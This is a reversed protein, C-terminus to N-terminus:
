RVVRWNLTISDPNIASATPNCFKFNVNNTTPYSYISLGGATLPQFGVADSINANPTWTIVDTTAVGTASVTTLSSCAESSISPADIATAGAAIIVGVTGVSGGNVALATAVGTGLGSVKTAIPVSGQMDPLDMVLELATELSAVTIDKKADAAASDEILLHDGAVPTAKDTIAAIEGSVDDHIATADSSGPSAQLGVGVWGVGGTTCTASNTCVCLSREAGGSSTCDGPTPDDTVVVMENTAPYSPLFTATKPALKGATILGQLNNDGSVDQWLTCEGTGINNMGTICRKDTLNSGDVNVTATGTTLNGLFTNKAVRSVTGCFGDQNPDSMEFVNGIFNNRTGAFDSSADDNISIGCSGASESFTRFTNGTFTNYSNYPISATVATNELWVGKGPSANCVGSVCDEWNACARNADDSCVGGEFTNGSIVANNVGQLLLGQFDAGRIGKCHNGTITLGNNIRNAEPSHVTQDMQAVICSTTRNGNDIGNASIDINNGSVLWGTGGFIGIARATGIPTADVPLNDLSFTNNVISCDDCHLGHIVGASSGIFHSNSVTVGLPTNSRTPASVALMRVAFVNPGPYGSDSTAAQVSDWWIQDILVDRVNDSIDIGMGYGPTCGSTCTETHKLKLDSIVIRQSGGEICIMKDFDVGPGTDNFNLVSSPGEGRIWIDDGGNTEFACDDGWGSRAPLDYSTNARLQLVCTSDPTGPCRSLAEQLGASTSGGEAPNVDIIYGSELSTRLGAITISTAAGAEVCTLNGSGNMSLQGNSFGACLNTAFDLSALNNIARTTNMDLNGTAPSVFGWLPIWGALTGNYACAVRVAGGGATCTDGTADTVIAVEGAQPTLASCPGTRAALQAVTCIPAAAGGGSLPIELQAWASSACLLGLILAFARLM